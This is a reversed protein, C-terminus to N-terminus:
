KVKLRNLNRVIFNGLRYSRSQRTKQLERHAEMVVSGVRNMATSFFMERDADPVLPYILQYVKVLSEDMLAKKQSMSGPSLRYHALPEDIFITKVNRRFLQLWMHWDERAKLTENFRISKFLSTKFIGCHPPFVFKEDWGTLISTFNFNGSNLEFPPKIREETVTFSFFGTIIIEALGKYKLSVLFKEPDLRDDADLFQIFEGRALDIGKNRASSLGGNEKRVYKLRGDGKCLERAVEETNDTSGDDIILCEWQTFSQAMVSRVAEKLFCGHNYSPIIVSVEPFMM